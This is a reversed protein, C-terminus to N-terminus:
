MLGVDATFRTITLNSDVSMRILHQEIGGIAKLFRDFAREADKVTWRESM